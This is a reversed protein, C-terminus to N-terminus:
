YGLALYRFGGPSDAQHFVICGTRSYNGVGLARVSAPSTADDSPFVGLCQNNFALPFTISASGLGASTTGSGWQIYLGNQLRQYGVLNTGGGWGAILADRLQTDPTNSPTIGGLRIVNSIQRWLWDIQEDRQQFIANFLEVAPPTNGLFSFGQAEQADSPPAVAGTRAWVKGFRDFGAM